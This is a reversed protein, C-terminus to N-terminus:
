IQCTTLGKAKGNVVVPSGSMGAITSLRYTPMIGGLVVSGHTVVLQSKPFLEFVNDVLDGRILDPHMRRVYREDYLGPYGVVDVSDNPNLDCDEIELYVKAKYTGIVQLIAIDADPLGTGLCKCEITELPEPDDKDFLDEVFTTARLTGPLQALIRRNNDPVLHAM